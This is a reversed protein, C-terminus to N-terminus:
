RVSVLSRPLGNKKKHLIFPSGIFPSGLRDPDPRGESASYAWQLHVESESRAAAAATNRILM